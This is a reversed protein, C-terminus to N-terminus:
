AAKLAAVLRATQVAERVDHVRLISAGLWLALAGVTLTGCLRETPPLGGLAAGIFSKRSHGVLVPLGLATLAPLEKVLKLNDSVSKGFGLGPDLWVAERAVGEAACYELREAFFDRVAQTPGKSGYRDAQQHSWRMADPAELSHMVCVGAGSEAAVAAMDPDALASVDNILCAGEEVCRRAVSAKRTDVSVPLDPAQKRLAKLVPLLRALEEEASVLAAGPRTSEGGLDVIDAGQGAMELAHDVASAPENWLGGDSFSDPTINLIGMVLPREGLARNLRAFDALM